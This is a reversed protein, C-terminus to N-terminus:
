TNTRKGDPITTKLLEIEGKVKYEGSGAEIFVSDGKALNLVTDGLSVSGSGYVALLSVFSSADAHDCWLEHVKIDDVVFYDCEGIHGGFDYDVRAPELSAVECAEKIHLQRPKGLADKRGYDYVRYTVNSNQQIEAIVIGGGIAHITRAEIFFVDGRKVSVMNM